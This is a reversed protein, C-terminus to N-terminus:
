HLDGDSDDEGDPSDIDEVKSDVGWTGIRLRNARDKVAEWLLNTDTVLTKIQKIENEKWNYIGVLRKYDLNHIIHPPGGTNELDNFIRMGKSIIEGDKSWILDNIEQLLRLYTSFNEYLSDANQRTNNTVQEMMLTGLNVIEPEVKQDSFDVKLIVSFLFFLKQTM